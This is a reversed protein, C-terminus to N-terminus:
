QGFADNFARRATSNSGTPFVYSKGTRLLDRLELRFFDRLSSSQVQNQCAVWKRLPALREGDLPLPVESPSLKGEPPMKGCVKEVTDVFAPNDLTPRKRMDFFDIIFMESAPTERMKTVIDQPIGQRLLYAYADESAQILVSKERGYVIESSRFVLRHVGLEGAPFLTRRAGGAFMLVCSSYCKSYPGVKVPASSRDFLDAFSMAEAVDGGPSNLWIGNSYAELANETLLFQRFREFDGQNIEGRITISRGPYEKSGQHVYFEAAVVSKAFLLLLLLMVNVARMM